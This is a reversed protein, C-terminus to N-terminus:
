NWPIRTPGAVGAKKLGNIATRVTARAAEPTLNNRGLRGLILAQTEIEEMVNWTLTRGTQGFARYLMQQAGTVLGHDIGLRALEANPIALAAKADYGVAKLFASKAPIHHGGGPGRYPELKAAVTEAEKALGGAAALEEAPGGIMSLLDGGNTAAYLTAKLVNKGDEWKEESAAKADVALEAEKVEAYKSQVAAEDEQSWGTVPVRPTDPNNPFEPNGMAVTIPAAQPVVASSSADGGAPRTSDGMPTTLVFTNTSPPGYRNDGLSEGPSMETFTTTNTGAYPNNVSSYTYPNGNSLNGSFSCRGDPDLNNVPDGGCYDYLSMSSGHGLPDPSIFRGALPEYYRAGMYYFGTPDMRRSRWALAFVLDSTNQLDHVTAGPLPGYSGISTDNRTVNGSLDVAAVVNGFVDNIVGTASGSTELVIAELGGIGQAGGYGGSVDPGHIEWARDGNVAVGIELFEVEPDYWSDTTRTSAGGSQYTTRIRRGFGDYIAGWIFSNGGSEVVSVLRGAGDWKLTQTDGNALMRSIVNGDADYQSNTGSSL